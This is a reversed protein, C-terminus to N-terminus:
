KIEASFHVRSGKGPTSDITLEGGLLSARERMNHLGLGGNKKTAPDFGIGDDIIELNLHQPSCNIIIQIRRAQAHKLANNLAEITIWFLDEHWEQPCYEMSGEQIIQARLGAHREVILLRSELNQIFNVGREMDSPQM